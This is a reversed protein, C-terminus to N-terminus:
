GLALGSEPAISREGRNMEEQSIVERLRAVFKGYQGTHIAQGSSVQVNGARQDSLLDFYKYRLAQLYLDFYEDELPLEYTNLTDDTIATPKKKYVAEIYYYPAGWGDAPTPHLRFGSIEPQYCISTPRSCFSSPYLNRTVTLPWEEGWISRVWAKELSFYNSPIQIDPAAHDPENPTMYFPPFEVLSQRWPYANWVLRLAQDAAEVSFSTDNLQQYEPSKRILAIAKGPTKAM